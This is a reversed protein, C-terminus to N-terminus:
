RAQVDLETLKVRITRGVRISRLSGTAVLQTWGYVSPAFGV